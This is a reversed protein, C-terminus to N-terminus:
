TLSAVPQFFNFGEVYGVLFAVAKQRVVPHWDTMALQGTRPLVLFRTTCLGLIPSHLESFQAVKFCVSVRFGPCNTVLCM